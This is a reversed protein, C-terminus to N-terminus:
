QLMSRDAVIRGDRAVLASVPVTQVSGDPRALIVADIAGGQELVDDIEGLPQGERDVVPMGIWGAADIESDMLPVTEADEDLDFEVGGAPPTTIQPESPSAAGDTPPAGELLMQDEVEVEQAQGVGSTALGCALITSLLFIKKM